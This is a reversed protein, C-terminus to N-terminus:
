VTKAMAPFQGAFSPLPTAPFLRTPICSANAPSCTGPQTMLQKLFRSHLSHGAKCVEFAGVVPMGILALDGMFDLIKHRVCEDAYRFGERNLLGSEDLVIANALSGGQARGMTQLKKVDKLFGFTRAKAIERRFSNECFSWSLEQKGVLPHPYDISYRISIHDSPTVRIFAGGEKLMMPRDITLCKRAADQQRIGAKQLLGTYPAASGDLIPIEPGDVEVMANDVGCGLFAAMLHEVTGVSAGGLGITTAQFTDVVQRYHAVITPRGALDTRQFRIGFDPPAPKLRITVNAGTHLGVGGCWVERTLTHQKSFFYSV